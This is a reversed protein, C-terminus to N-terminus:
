QWHSSNVSGPFPERCGLRSRTPAQFAAALSPPPNLRSSAAPALPLTGEPPCRQLDPRSHEEAQLICIHVFLLLMIFVLQPMEAVSGSAEVSLALCFVWM